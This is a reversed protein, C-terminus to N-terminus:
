DAGYTKEERPSRGASGRRRERPGRHGAAFRTGPKSRRERALYVVTWLEAHRDSQAHQSPWVSEHRNAVDGDPEIAKRFGTTRGMRAEFSVGFGVDNDNPAPQGSTCTRPRKCVRPDAGDQQLGVRQAGRAGGLRRTENAFIEIRRKAVGNLRM